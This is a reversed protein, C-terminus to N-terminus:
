EEYEEVGNEYIDTILNILRNTQTELIKRDENNILPNLLKMGYKFRIYEITKRYKIYPKINGDILIIILIVPKFIFGLLLFLEQKFLTMEEADEDQHQAILYIVSGILVYILLIYLITIM